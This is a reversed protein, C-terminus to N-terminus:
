ITTSKKILKAAKAENSKLLEEFRARLNARRASPLAGLVTLKERIVSAIFASVNKHALSALRVADAEEDTLYVGLTPM